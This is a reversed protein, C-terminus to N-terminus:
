TGPVFSVSAVEMRQPFDAPNPTGGMSGGVAVNMLVHMPQNFPDSDPDNSRPYRLVPTDDVKIVIGSADRTASYDHFSNYMSEGLSYSGVPIDAAGQKASNFTHIDAEIVGRLGVGTEVMDIEGNKRTKLDWDFTADKAPIYTEGYANDTPLMWIAPWTGKGSPLKARLTFTGSQEDLKHKTTVHGSTYDAGGLREKHAEIVLVGDEIRANKVRDTYAVNEGNWGKAPIQEGGQDYVSKQYTDFTFWERSLAGDKMASMDLVWSGDDKVTLPNVSTSSSPMDTSQASASKRPTQTTSDSSSCATVLVAVLLLVLSFVRKRAITTTPNSRHPTSRM